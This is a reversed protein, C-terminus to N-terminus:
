NAQPKEGAIRQWEDAGIVLQIKRYHWPRRGTEMWLFDMPLDVNREAMECLAEGITGDKRATLKLIAYVDLEDEHRVYGKKQLIVAEFYDDERPEGQREAKGRAEVGDYQEYPLQPRLLADMMTACSTGENHFHLKKALVISKEDREKVAFPADAEVRIDEIDLKKFLLKGFIWALLLVLVIGGFIYHSLIM